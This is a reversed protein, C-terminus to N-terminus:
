VSAATPAPKGPLFASDSLEECPSRMGRAVVQARLSTYFFLQSTRILFPAATQFEALLQMSVGPPLLTQLLGGPFKLASYNIQLIVCKTLQLGEPFM